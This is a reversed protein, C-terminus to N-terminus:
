GQPRRDEWFGERMRFVNGRVTIKGEKELRGLLRSLTEPLTGISSALDKKSMPLTYEEKEGYHESLFMFFREEIDYATLLLIRDTLYRQKAMMMRMFDNRFDENNLLCHLQIRPILVVASRGLARASVPYSKQEFLIVEGFIEGPGVVKIVTEHGDAATKLLQVAGSTLLYVAHGQQGESFLLKKKEITKPICIEALTKISPGSLGRFFEALRLLNAVNM